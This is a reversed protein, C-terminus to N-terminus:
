SAHALAEAESDALAALRRKHTARHASITAREETLLLEETSLVYVTEGRDSLRGVICANFTEDRGIPQVDLSTLNLISTVSTVHLAVPPDDGRLILLPSYVGLVEDGLNLLRDLRVAAAPVGGFDFFGEIFGPAGVPPELLPLPVVRRVAAM